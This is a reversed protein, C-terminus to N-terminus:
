LWHRLNQAIDEIYSQNRKSRIGFKKDMKLDFTKAEPKPVYDLMM